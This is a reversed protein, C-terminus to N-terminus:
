HDMNSELTHKWEEINELFIATGVGLPLSVVACVLLVYMSGFIAAKVGSQDAHRSPFSTLFDWSLFKTGKLLISGLLVALIAVSSFACLQCFIKFNRDFRVRKRNREKSFELQVSM